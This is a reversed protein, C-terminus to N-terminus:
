TLGSVKFRGIGLGDREILPEAESQDARDIGAAARRDERHHPTDGSREVPRGLCQPDRGHCLIRGAVVALHGSGRSRRANGARKMPLNPAYDQAFTAGHFTCPDANRDRRAPHCQGQHRATAVERALGITLSDIGGKTAAYHVEHPLGGLVAAMSSINVIAGGKGGHATSMRQVAERCCYIARRSQRCPHARGNGRRDRCHAQGAMISGANNVLSTITGLERDVTEFMAVIERESGIDAGITIAKGGAAIIQSRSRRPRQAAAHRLARRGCRRGAGAIARSAAIPAPSMAHWKSRGTKRQAGQRYWREVDRIHDNM